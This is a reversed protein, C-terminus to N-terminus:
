KLMSVVSRMVNAAPTDKDTEKADGAARLPEELASLMAAREAALGAAEADTRSIARGVPPGQPAM